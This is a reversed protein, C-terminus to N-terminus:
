LGRAGALDGQAEARVIEGVKLAAVHDDAGGADRGGGDGREHGGGCSQHGLEGEGQALDGLVERDGHGADRPRVALGRRRREQTREQLPKTFGALRAAVDPQRGRVHAQPQPPAHSAFPVPRAPQVAEGHLDARVLQLNLRATVQKARPGGCDQVKRVVVGLPVPSHLTVCPGLGGQRVGHPWADVRQHQRPLTLGVGAQLGRQALPRLIPSDPHAGQGAGGGPEAVAGRDTDLQGPPM